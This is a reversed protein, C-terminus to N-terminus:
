GTVGHPRTRRPLPERGPHDTTGADVLLSGRRARHPDAPNRITVTVHTTGLNMKRMRPAHRESFPTGGTTPVM